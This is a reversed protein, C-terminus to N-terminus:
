NLKFNYISLEEELENVLGDAYYYDGLKGIVNFRTPVKVDVLLDFSSNYIQM